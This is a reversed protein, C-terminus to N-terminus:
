EFVIEVIRGVLHGHGLDIQVFDVGLQTVSAGAKETLFPPNQMGRLWRDESRHSEGQLINSCLLGEVAFVPLLTKKVRNRSSQAVTCAPFGIVTLPSPVRRSSCDGTLTGRVGGWQAQRRQPFIGRPDPPTFGGAGFGIVM